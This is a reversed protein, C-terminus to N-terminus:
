LCIFVTCCVLSSKETKENDKVPEYVANYTNLEAGDGGYVANDSSYYTTDSTFM